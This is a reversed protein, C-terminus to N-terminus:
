AERPIFNDKWKSRIRHLEDLVAPASDNQAQLLLVRIDQSLPGRLANLVEDNESDVLIRRLCFLATERVQNHMSNSKYSYCIFAVVTSMTEQRIDSWRSIISSLILLGQRKISWTDNKSSNYVWQLVRDRSSQLDAWVNQEKRGASVQDIPWGFYICEMVKVRYAPDSIECSPARAVEGQSTPLPRESQRAARAVARGGGPTSKTASKGPLHKAYRDGFMSTSAPTVVKSAVGRKIADSNENSAIDAAVPALCPESQTIGALNSLREVYRLAEIPFHLSIHKWSEHMESLAKSASYRYSKDGRELEVMICDIVAHCNVTLASNPAIQSRRFINDVVVYQHAVCEALEVSTDAGSADAEPPDVPADGTWRDYVYVARYKELVFVVTELVIAQGNWIRFKICSFLAVLIEFLYPQIIDFPLVSSVDRCVSLGVSRQKWSLSRLLDCLRNIVLTLTKVLASYKNGCGSYNLAENWTVAWARAVDDEPHFSGIYSCSLIPGWADADHELQEGARRLIHGLCEAIVLTESAEFNSSFQSSYRNVLSLCQSSLYEGPVCLSAASLCSLMASKLGSSTIDFQMLVSLCAEFVTRALSGDLRKFELEFSEMLRLLSKVASVRTALGVGGRLQGCLHYLVSPLYSPPLSQLCIDLAEQTLLQTLCPDTHVSCMNIDVQMPSQQSLTLRLDELEKDSINLRATHFQMYQLTRPELAAM